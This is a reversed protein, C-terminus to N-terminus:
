IKSKVEFFHPSLVEGAPLFVEEDIIEYIVGDVEGEVSLYYVGPPIGDFRFRGSSDARKSFVGEFNAADVSITFVSYDFGQSINPSFIASILTAPARYEPPSDSDYPHTPEVRMCAISTLTITVLLLLSQMVKSSCLVGRIM